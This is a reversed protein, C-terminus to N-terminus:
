NRGWNYKTPVIGVSDAGFRTNLEEMLEPCIGTEVSQPYRKIMKEKACYAVVGDRGDYKSVIGTLDKEAKDFADRDSFKIWVEKKIEDLSVMQQCILKAGREEEITVRGKILLRADVDCITRYKTYDKPFVLVEVTGYMDELTLFAMITNSRTTKVLRNSVIGGIVCEEGDKLKVSDESIGSAKQEDEEAEEAAFDLTTVNSNKELIDSYRELPHGSVYIGLVEKEFALVEDKSYDSVDPLPVMDKKAYDPDFLEFLTMQGEMASKKESAAREVISPFAIMLQHRNGPLTDFAGAKILSEIVRKNTEKSSLRSVFNKVGTYPGNKKRESVIAE